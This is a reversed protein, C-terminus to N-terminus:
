VSQKADRSMAPMGHLRKLGEFQREFGSLGQTWVMVYDVPVAQLDPVRLSLQQTILFLRDPAHASWRSAVANRQTSTDRFHFPHACAILGGGTPSAEHDEVVVGLDEGNDSRVFADVAM